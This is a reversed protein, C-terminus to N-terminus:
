ETCTKAKTNFQECRTMDDCYKCFLHITLGQTKKKTVNRKKKILMIQFYTTYQTFQNLRYKHPM